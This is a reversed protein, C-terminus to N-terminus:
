VLFMFNPISSSAQSAIKQQFHLKFVGMFLENIITNSTFAVPKFIFAILCLEDMFIPDRYERLLVLFHQNM